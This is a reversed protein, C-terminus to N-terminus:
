GLTEARWRSLVGHFPLASGRLSTYTVRNLAGGLDRTVLGPVPFARTPTLMPVPAALVCAVGLREAIDVGGLVKPHYLVADAGRAAAWADDLLARMLPLVLRRWYRVARLPNALMARAEDSALLAQYDTRLPGFAIGHAAALDAFNIPAILTPQHGAHLLGRALAVFPQVDGRTGATLIALRM